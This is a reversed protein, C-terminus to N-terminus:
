QPRSAPVLSWSDLRYVLTGGEQFSLEGDPELSYCLKISRGPFKPSTVVESSYMMSMSLIVPESNLLEDVEESTMGQKLLADLSVAPTQPQQKSPVGPAQPSQSVVLGAMVLALAVVAVVATKGEMILDESIPNSSDSEISDCDTQYVLQKEKGTAKSFGDQKV